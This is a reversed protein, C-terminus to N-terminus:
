NRYEETDSTPIYINELLWLLSKYESSNVDPIADAYKGTISSPNKLDFYETYHRAAISGGAFMDGANFGPGGRICYITEDFDSSTGASNTNVIKWVNNTGTTGVKYGFGSERLLRITLYKGTSDTAANSVNFISTALVTFLTIMFILAIKKLKM